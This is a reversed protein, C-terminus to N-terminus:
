VLPHQFETYNRMSIWMSQRHTHTNTHKQTHTHAHTHTLSHTSRISCHTRETHLGSHKRNILSILTPSWVKERWSTSHLRSSRCLPGLLCLRSKLDPNNCFFSILSNRSDECFIPPLFFMARCRMYTNTTLYLWKWTWILYNIYDVCKRYSNSHQCHLEIFLYCKGSSKVM